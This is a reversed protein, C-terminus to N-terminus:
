WTESFKMVQVVYQTFCPFPCCETNEPILVEPCYTRPFFWFVHEPLSPTPLFMCTSYQSRWVRGTLAVLVSYKCIEPSLQHAYTWCMLPWDQYPLQGDFPSELNSRGLQLVISTVNELEEGSSSFYHPPAPSRDFSAFVEHVSQPSCVSWLNM